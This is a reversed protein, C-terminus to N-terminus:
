SPRGTLKALREALEDYEKLRLDYIAEANKAASRTKERADSAVVLAMDAVNLKDVIEARAKARRVQDEISM